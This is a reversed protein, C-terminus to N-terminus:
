GEAAEKEKEDEGDDMPIPDEPTGAAEAEEAQATTKTEDTEPETEQEERVPPDPAVSKYWMKDGCAKRYAAVLAPVLPRIKEQLNVPEEQWDVKLETPLTDVKAHVEKELDEQSPLKGLLRPDLLFRNSLKGPMRLTWSEELVVVKPGKKSGRKFNYFLVDWQQFRGQAKVVAMHDLNQFLSKDRNNAFDGLHVGKPSSVVGGVMHDPAMFERAQMKFYTKGAQRNDLRFGEPFNVLIERSNQDSRVMEAKFLSKHEGGFVIKKQFEAPLSQKDVPIPASVTVEIPFREVYEQRGEDTGKNGQKGKAM